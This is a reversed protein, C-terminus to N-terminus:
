HGEKDLAINLTLVNVGPEGLFGLSRGDTNKAILRQVTVLPLHRVAAVRKAQLQANAPSIDPDIGSASTTVADVPIDGITMGPNYYGELALIAKAAAAVNKALDPNTPGLNAFSTGMANYSVASPREHFYKPGTFQQAALKSGVVKGNITTLSGNAQGKFAVQAFGTMVLPYGFGFVATIVVIAIVSSLVNKMPADIRRRDTRPHSGPLDDARCHPRDRRRAVRRVNARRHPIDRSLGARDEEERPCRRARAGRVDARVPRAADCGNRLRRQLEDLRIRRVRQRQQEVALRLCLADGHVRPRRQQLGLRARGEDRDFASGVDLGDDARVAGRAGRIQDRACRDEQRAM